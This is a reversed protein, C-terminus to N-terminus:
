VNIEGRLSKSLNVEMEQKTLNQGLLFMLKCIAAETTSDNGSIVGAEILGLSTEYAGMDVSGASCQSVNLVVIGNAVAHSLKEIFWKQTPANGSGFSELVLGKLGKINIFADVVETTIGPFLKLIAVNPDLTHYVHLDRKVVPYHIASYNYTINIGAKALEPYNYSRFADFYDANHKSTRNGRYLKNEFFITVEPVLPQNNKKAAAIEIASIFNEKGDTRLTGIPLQSGTFVVPKGLNELLFSLASASYAMTDTGHLIVFGDYTEYNREILEALHIWIEPTINSSDVVEEFTITTLDFGFKNLEPVQKMVHDFDFPALSGTEPDNIMGITGGTYIILISTGSKFM